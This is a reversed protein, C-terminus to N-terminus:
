CLRGGRNKGASVIHKTSSMKKSGVSVPTSNNLKVKKDRGGATLVSSIVASKVHVRTVADNKGSAQSSSTHSVNRVSSGPMRTTKIVPDSINLSKSRSSRISNNSRLSSLSSDVKVKNIRFAIGVIKSDVVNAGESKSILATKPPERSFSPPSPSPSRSRMLTKSLKSTSVSRSPTQAKPTSTCPKNPVLTARSRTPTFDSASLIKSKSDKTANLLNKNTGSKGTISVSPVRIIEVKHSPINSSDSKLSVRKVGAKSTKLPASHPRSMKKSPPAKLEATSDSTADKLATVSRMLPTDISDRNDDFGLPFQLVSSTM